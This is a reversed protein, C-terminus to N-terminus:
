AALWDPYKEAYATAASTDNRDSGVADVRAMEGFIRAHEGSRACDETFEEAEEMSDFAELNREGYLWPRTTSWMIVPCNPQTAFRTYPM